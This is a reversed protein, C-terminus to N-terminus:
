IVQCSHDAMQPLIHVFGPGSSKWLKALRKSKRHHHSASSSPAFELRSDLLLLVAEPNYYSFGGEGNAEVGVGGNGGKNLISTWLDVLYENLLDIRNKKKCKKPQSVLSVAEAEEVLVDM